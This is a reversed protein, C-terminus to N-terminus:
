FPCFLSWVQTNEFMLPAADKARSSQVFFGADFIFLLKARNIVKSLRLSPKKKICQLTNNLAMM